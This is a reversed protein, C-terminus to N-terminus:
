KVERKSMQPLPQTSQLAMGFCPKVHINLNNKLLTRPDYSNLSKVNGRQM